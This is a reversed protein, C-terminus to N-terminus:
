KPINLGSMGSSGGSNAAQITLGSRASRKRGKRHEEPVEIVPSNRVEAALPAQQAMPKPPEARPIPPIM